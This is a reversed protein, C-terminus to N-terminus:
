YDRGFCSLCKTEKAPVKSKCRPTSLLNCVFLQHPKLLLIRCGNSARVRFKLNILNLFHVPCRDAPGAPSPSVRTTNAFHKILNFTLTELGSPILGGKKEKM